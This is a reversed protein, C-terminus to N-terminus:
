SGTTRRSRKTRAEAEAAAKAVPGSRDPDDVEKLEPVVVARAPIDDATGAGRRKTSGVVANAPVDGATSAGSRGSNVAKKLDSGPKFAVAVTAPIDIAAGTQPNRGPRAARPRVEFSGFGPRRFAGDQCIAEAMREFVSRTVMDVQHKTLKRGGMKEISAALVRDLFESNTM